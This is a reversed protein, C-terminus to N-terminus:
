KKPTVLWNSPKRKIKNKYISKNGMKILNTLNTLHIFYANKNFLYSDLATLDIISTNNKTKM